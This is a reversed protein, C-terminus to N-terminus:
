LSNKKTIIAKYVFSDVAGFKYKYSENGRMFDVVARSNEIAWQILFSLLVWGPSFYQMENSIGSNYIYITKHDDFCFYAAAPIGNIELFCLRLIGENFSWSLLDQMHIAMPPNLFSNKAPDERMLELFVKGRDPLDSEDEVFFCHFDAAEQELRRIKRRIEHRQKKDLSALYAEWTAPLSLSPAPLGKEIKFSISDPLAANQFFHLLPSSAPVNSFEIREWAAPADNVLHNIITQLFGGYNQPAVILDLYDSIEESGIFTILTKGDKITKFFPAIGILNENEYGLIIYPEGAKWEGGGLSQWWLRLYGFRLFPVDGSSNELLADWESQLNEPFYNLVKIKM